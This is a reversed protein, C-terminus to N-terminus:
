VLVQMQESATPTTYSIRDKWNLYEDLLTQLSDHLHGPTRFMLNAPCGLKQEVDDALNKVITNRNSGTYRGSEGFNLCEVILDAARSHHV